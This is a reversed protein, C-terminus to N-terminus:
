ESFLNTEGINAVERQQREEASMIKSHMKRFRGL